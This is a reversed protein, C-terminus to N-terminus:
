WHNYIFWQDHIATERVDDTIMFLDSIAYQWKGYMILLRLYILNYITMERVNDTITFLDSIMYQWKGCMILSRLLDSIAYQLKDYM